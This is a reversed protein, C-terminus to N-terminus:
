SMSELEERYEALREQNDKQNYERIEDAEKILDMDVLQHIALEVLSESYTIISVGWKEKYWTYNNRLIHYQELIFKAFIVDAEDESELTKIYQHVEEFILQIFAMGQKDEFDREPSSLKLFLVLDFLSIQHDAFEQVRLKDFHMKLRSTYFNVKRSMLLEKQHEERTIENIRQVVTPNITLADLVEYFSDCPTGNSVVFDEPMIKPFVLRYWPKKSPMARYQIKEYLLGNLFARYINDEQMKQSKEDLDPLRNIWHWERDIHPTIVPTEESKPKIKSILEFYSKYYDGAERPALSDDMAPPAFKSLENARLGYISKYFLIMNKDIDDDAVGGANQLQENILMHRKPNDKQDIMPHYACAIIMTKQEGLPKEIFPASLNKTEEIVHEVYHKIQEEDFIDKEYRAELELAEIIDIDIKSGYSEMLSTKFYGLIDKDFLEVFFSDNTPKDKLLAHKRVKMYIKDSLEGPLNMANGTFPMQKHFKDFCNETACVYRTASGKIGEYKTKIKSIERSIDTVSSEFSKYFVQFSRSLDGVYEIGSRLVEQYISQTRYQDVKDIFRKYQQLLDEQDATLRKRLKNILGKKRNLLDPASEVIDETNPDDFAVREFTEFFDNIEQLDNDVVLKEKKLVELTQYLFYRVANPHIFQDNSDRLYTELQHKHKDKTISENESKFMMYAITRATEDSRKFVMGKYKLMESYANYFSEYEHNGDVGLQNVGRNAMDRQSDLDRQGSSSMQEVYSKLNAVYVLWKNGVRNLGDSDFVATSNVIFNGFPEKQNAAAEVSVIYDEGPELDKVNYGRSRMENNLISKDKYQRDFTLWQESVSQKAWELALYRQVDSSPYILMSSGAGAYRNRGGSSVLERITNDESSNSRKNMPGISQAYICSAAHDKYQNFSNLKKGDVNQADFLFCFDFPMVDYDEHEKSGVRPFEFKLTDRYKKPLTGDGKMLFADLERLTAYANCKLNNRESQGKIVEYFVEPLIFFGRTINASQQFKTKLYHKMYMSIPLILGSGTGGALSSVILVRLAHIEKEGELKYLDAIAQHLPEMQGARVATDIALRSIARVQGAGNALTKRSLIKNVPFWEDRAHADINLYEGVTLSTSTQVTRIFPNQERIERLENIDTDFVIFGIRKRQENTVQKAVRQVIDSGTGGLGVVLTPALM